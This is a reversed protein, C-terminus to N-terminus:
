VAERELRDLSSRQDAEWLELGAWVFDGEWDVFDLWEILQRLVRGKQLAKAYLPNAAAAAESYARCLVEAEEAPPRLRPNMYDIYGNENLAAYRAEYMGDSRIYPPFEAALFAPMSVIQWDVLGAFHGDHILVNRDHPDLHVPRISLLLPDLLSLPKLLRCALVTLRDLLAQVDVNAGDFDRWKTATIRWHLYDEASAFPGGPGSYVDCDQFPGIIPSISAQEGRDGVVEGIRPPLDVDFLQAFATALEPIFVHYDFAEWRATDYATNLLNIGQLRSQLIFPAGIPNKPDTDYGLVVHILPNQGILAICAVDTETMDRAFKRGEDTDKFNYCIRAVCDPGDDEIVLGYVVNYVGHGVLSDQVAIVKRQLVASFYKLMADTFVPPRSGNQGPCYLSEATWYPDYTPEASM